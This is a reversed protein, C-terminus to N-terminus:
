HSRPAAAPLRESLDNALLEAILEEVGAGHDAKTVHMVKSKLEPLANAVAVSMGCIALFDEDNEADGVGVVSEASIKLEGLAQRLGSAKTVGKPLIMVANKNLAVEVDLRLERIADRVDKEHPRWTAVISKGVFIPVSRRRLEETLEIPPAKALTREQQGEEGLLVAGNEAIVRDFIGLEPFVSRLDAVERGTVLVIKRGSEKVRQLAAVTSKPVVGDEALTGDYDSALCVFRM